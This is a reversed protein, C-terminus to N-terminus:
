CSGNVKSFDFPCVDSLPVIALFNTVFVVWPKVDAFHLAIGIPIFVLLVNAWSSTIILKLPRLIRLAKVVRLAKVLVDTPTRQVQQLKFRTRIIPPQDNEVEQEIKDLNPTESIPQPPLNDISESAPQFTDIASTVASESQLRVQAAAAPPPATVLLVDNRDRPRYRV